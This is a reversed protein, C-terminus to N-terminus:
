RAWMGIRLTPIAPQPRRSAQTRQHPLSSRQHRKSWVPEMGQGFWPRRHNSTAPMGINSFFFGPDPTDYYDSLPGSQILPWASQLGTGADTLAPKILLHAVLSKNRQKLSVCPLMISKEKLARSPAAASSALVVTPGRGRIVRSGHYPHRTTSISVARIHIHIDSM